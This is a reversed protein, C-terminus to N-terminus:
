GDPVQMSAQPRQWGPRLVSVRFESTQAREHAEHGAAAPPSPSVLGARPLGVLCPPCSHLEPCIMGRQLALPGLTTQATCHRPNHTVRTPTFTPTPSQLGWITLWRGLRPTEDIENFSHCSLLGPQDPHGSAWRTRPTAKLSM